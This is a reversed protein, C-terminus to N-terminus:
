KPQCLLETKNIEKNTRDAIKSLIGLRMRLVRNKIATFRKIEKQREYENSFVSYFKSYEVTAISNELSQVAANNSELKELLNELTAM